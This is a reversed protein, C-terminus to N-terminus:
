GDQQRASSSDSWRGGADKRRQVVCRWGTRAELFDAFDRALAAGAKGAEPQALELLIRGERTLRSALFLLPVDNSRAWAFANPSIAVPPARRDGPDPEIRYDVFAIVIDGNAIHRACRLLVDPNEADVLTLPERDGWHSGPQVNGPIAVFVPKLGQARLLAHAAFALRQHATCILVGCGGAAAADLLAGQEWAADLRLGPGHATIRCLMRNLMTARRDPHHVPRRGFGYVRALIPYSREIFRCVSHQVRDAARRRGILDAAADLVLHAIAYRL